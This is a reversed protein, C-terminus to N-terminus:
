WDDRNDAKDRPRQLQAPSRSSIQEADRLHLPVERVCLRWGADRSTDAPGAGAGM